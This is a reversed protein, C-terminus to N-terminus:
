TSLPFLSACLMISVPLEAIGLNLQRSEKLCRDVLEKVEAKTLPEGLIEERTYAEKPGQGEPYPGPQQVRKVGKKGPPPPKFSDFEPLKKKSKGSPARGTWPRAMTGPGFPSYVPERFGIPAVKPTETYSFQYDFDPKIVAPIWDPSTPAEATKVALEDKVKSDDSSSSSSIDRSQSPSFSPSSYTRSTPTTGQHASKSYKSFKGPISPKSPITRAGISRPAYRPTMENILSTRPGKYLKSNGFDRENVAAGLRDSDQWADMDDELDQKTSRIAVRKNKANPNRLNSAESGSWDNGRSDMGIDLEKDVEEDLSSWIADRRSRSNINTSSSFGAEKVLNSNRLEQGEMRSGFGEDREAQKWAELEEAEFEQRPNQEIEGRSNRPRMRNNLSVRPEKFLKSNRFNKGETRSGLWDGGEVVRSSNLEDEFVQEGRKRSRSDIDNAYSDNSFMWRRERENYEMGRAEQGNGQSGEGFRTARIQDYGDRSRFPGGFSNYPENSHRKAGLRGDQERSEGIHSVLKQSYGDRFGTSSGDGLKSDRKVVRQPEQGGQQRSGGSQSLSRKSYGDSDRQNTLFGSSLSYNIASKTESPKAVISELADEETDRSQESYTSTLTRHRISTLRIFSSSNSKLFPKSLPYCILVHGLSPSSLRIWHLSGTHLVRFKRSLNFTPTISLRLAM